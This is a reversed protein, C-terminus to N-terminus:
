QNKCSCHKNIKKMWAYRYVAREGDEGGYLKSIIISPPHVYINVGGMIWSTDALITVKNNKKRAVEQIKKLRCYNCKAM